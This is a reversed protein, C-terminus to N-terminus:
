WLNGAINIAHSEGWQVILPRKICHKIQHSYVRLIQLTKVHPPVVSVDAQRNLASLVGCVKVRPMNSIRAHKSLADCSM